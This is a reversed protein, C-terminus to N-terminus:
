DSYLSLNWSNGLEYHMGYKGIIANFENIYKDCNSRYYNFIGYLPGEFSMSLFDGAFTFYEKPDTNEDAFVCDFSDDTESLVYHYTRTEPDFDSFRRNNAYICTDQWLRNKILWNIIEEACRESDVNNFQVM